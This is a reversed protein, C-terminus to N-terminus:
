DTHIIIAADGGSGGSTGEQNGPLSNATDRRVEGTTEEGALQDMLILTSVAKDGFRVALELCYRCDAYDPTNSIGVYSGRGCWSVNHYGPRTLCRSM